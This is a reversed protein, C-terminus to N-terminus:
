FCCRGCIKLQWEKTGKELPKLAFSPGWQSFELTWKKWPSLWLPFHSSNQLRKVRWEILFAGNRSFTTPLSNCYVPRMTYAHTLRGNQEKSQIYILTLSLGPLPCHTHTHTHTHTYTPPEPLPCSIGRISMFKSLNDFVQWPTHVPSSRPSLCTCCLVGSRISNMTEILIKREIISFQFNSKSLGTVTIDM